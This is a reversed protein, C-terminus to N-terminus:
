LPDISEGACRLITGAVKSGSLKLISFGLEGHCVCRREGVVCRRTLEKTVFARAKM